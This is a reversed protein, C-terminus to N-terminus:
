SRAVLSSLHVYVITMPSCVPSSYVIRVQLFLVSDIDRADGEHVGINEEFQLQSRLCYIRRFFLHIDGGGCM